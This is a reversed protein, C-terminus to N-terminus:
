MPSWKCQLGPSQIAVSVWPAKCGDARDLLHQWPWMAAEVCHKTCEWYPVIMWMDIKPRPQDGFCEYSTASEHISPAFRQSLCVLFRVCSLIRDIGSSPQDTKVHSIQSCCNCRDIKRLCFMKRGLALDSPSAPRASFLIFIPSEHQNCSESCTTWEQPFIYLSM